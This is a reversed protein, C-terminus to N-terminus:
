FKPPLTISLFSFQNGLKVFNDAPRTRVTPTHSRPAAGNTAPPTAADSEPRRAVLAGQMNSGADAAGYIAPPQAGSSDPRRAGLAVQAFSASLGSSGPPPADSFPRRALHTAADPQVLSAARARGRGTM